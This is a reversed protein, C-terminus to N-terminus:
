IQASPRTMRFKLLANIVRGANKGFKDRLWKIQNLGPMKSFNTPFRFVGLYQKFSVVREEDAANLVNETKKNGKLYRHSGRVHENHSSIAEHTEPVVNTATSISTSCSAFIIATLVMVQSLRM